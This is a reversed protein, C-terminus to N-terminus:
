VTKEGIGSEVEDLWLKFIFSCSAASKGTTSLCGTAEPVHKKLMASACSIQHPSPCRLPLLTLHECPNFRGQKVSGEFMEVSIFARWSSFGLLMSGETAGCVCLGTNPCAPSAALQVGQTFGQGLPANVAVGRDRKDGTRPANLHMYQLGAPHLRQQAVGWADAPSCPVARKSTKSRWCSRQNTHSSM